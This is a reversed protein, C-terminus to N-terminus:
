TSKSHFGLKLPFFFFPEARKDERFSSLKWFNGSKEEKADFGCIQFCRESFLPM